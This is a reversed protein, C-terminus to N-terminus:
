VDGGAGDAAAALDVDSVEADGHAGDIQLRRRALRGDHEVLLVAALGRERLEVRRVVPGEHAGRGPEHARLQAAIRRGSGCGLPALGMKHGSANISQVRPLRFDWVVDPDVASQGVWTGFGCDSGAIVNERGVLHAYRGIRQAIELMREAQQAVEVGLTTLTARYGDRNLLRGDLASELQAGFLARNPLGSLADHYAQYEM